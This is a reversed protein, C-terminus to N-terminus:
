DVRRGARAGPVTGWVWGLAAGATAGLADAAVDRLEAHRGAVFSQHFEDTVGYATALIAALLATRAPVGALRAGTLGRLMVVALVAYAAAHAPVDSFTMLLQPADSSGSALYIALM